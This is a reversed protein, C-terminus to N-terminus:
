LRHDRQRPLHKKQRGFLDEHFLETFLVSFIVESIKTYRLIQLLILPKIHNCNM